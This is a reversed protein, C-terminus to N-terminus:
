CRFRVFGDFSHCFKNITACALIIKEDCGIGPFLTPNLMEHFEIFVVNQKEKHSRQFHCSYEQRFELSTIPM